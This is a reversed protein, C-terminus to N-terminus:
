SFSNGYYRIRFLYFHMLSNLYPFKYEFLVIELNLYRSFHSKTNSNFDITIFGHSNNYNNSRYNSINFMVAINYYSIHNGFLIM